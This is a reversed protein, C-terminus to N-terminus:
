YLDRQKHAGATSYGDMRSDYCLKNKNNELETSPVISSDLEIEPFLNLPHASVAFKMTELEANVRQTLSYPALSLGNTLQRAVHSKRGNRFYVKICTLAEPENALLSRLAGSKVLNVAEGVNVQSRNLFDYLDNFMEKRREKCIRGISKKTLGHVTYVGPVLIGIFVRIYRPLPQFNLYTSLLFHNPFCFVKYYRELNNVFFIFVYILISFLHLPCKLWAISLPPILV